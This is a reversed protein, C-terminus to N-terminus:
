IVFRPPQSIKPNKITYAPLATHYRQIPPRPPTPLPFPGSFDSIDGLGHPFIPFLSTPQPNPLLTQPPPYPTPLPFLVRSILDM